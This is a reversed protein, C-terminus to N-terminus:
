SRTFFLHCNYETVIRDLAPDRVTQQFLLQVPHRSSARACVRVCCGSKGLLRQEMPSVKVIVHMRREEEKYLCNHSPLVFTCVSLINDEGINLFYDKFVFNIM